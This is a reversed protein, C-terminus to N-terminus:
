RHPHRTDYWTAVLAYLVLLDIGILLLSWIPAAPLWAFQVGMNLCVLGIAVGRAWDPADRLLSLGTLLVLAGLALHVWGWVDADVALVTGDVTIFATPSYLALLGEIVAFGGAVAMLVGGFRVWGSWPESGVPRPTGIVPVSDTPSATTAATPVQQDTM